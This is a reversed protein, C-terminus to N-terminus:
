RDINGSAYAAAVIASAAVATNLSPAGQRAIRTAREADIPVFSAPKPFHGPPMPITVSVESAESLEQPVGDYENGILLNDDPRWAFDLHNQANADIDSRVLRGELDAVGLTPVITPPFRQLAGCAFDSITRAKGQDPFVGYADHILVPVRYIEASRLIMGINIPSQVGCLVLRM